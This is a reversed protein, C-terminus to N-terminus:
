YDAITSQLIATFAHAAATEYAGKRRLLAATRYPLRPDLLIPCLREHEYAILHPLITVLNGRRIIDLIAGISNAEISIHPAIGHARFFSNILQRTVFDGTLLALSEPQLDALTMTGGQNARPHTIGVMVTLKEAFLPQCDIEPSGVESFAIGLDLGDQALVLEMKNQSMEQINLLIGPYHTSFREMLPGILYTTFTPTMAIRLSGRSLNQVDHIARRGAELERLASRAYQLYVEGADTPRVSRGSRDLLQVQLLEELQKIQLSLTPQSVHLAEAARTFNHHEAVSLLYRLHRLLM